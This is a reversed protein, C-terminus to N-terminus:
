TAECGLKLLQLILTISGFLDMRSYFVRCLNFKILGLVRTEVRIPEPTVGIFVVAYYWWLWNHLKEGSIPGYKLIASKHFNVWLFAKAQLMQTSQREPHNNKRGSLSFSAWCPPPAVDTHLYSILTLWSFILFKLHNALAISNLITYSSCLSSNLCADLSTCSDVNPWDDCTSHVHKCWSDLNLLKGFNLTFLVSTLDLM